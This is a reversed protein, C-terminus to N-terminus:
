KVVQRMNTRFQILAEVYKSNIIARCLSFFCANAKQSRARNWQRDDRKTAIKPMLARDRDAEAM